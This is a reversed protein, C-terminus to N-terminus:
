HKAAAQIKPFTMLRPEGLCCKGHAIEFQKIMVVADRVSILGKWTARCKPCDMKVKVM